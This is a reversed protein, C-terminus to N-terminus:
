VKKSQIQEFKRIIKEALAKSNKADISKSSFVADILFSIESPEFERTGLYCGGGSNKVIDYGAVGLAELKEAVTKRDCDIGYLTELKDKIQKQTLFHKDDTYEKLIDLVYLILLSKNGSSTM